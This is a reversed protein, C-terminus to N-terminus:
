LCDVRRKFQWYCSGTFIIIFGSLAWFCVWFPIFANSATIAGKLGDTMYLAPNLYAAYGLAPSFENLVYWPIWFGGLMFIISNVRSWLTGLNASSKLVVAALLHYASAWVSGLLLLIAVKPWSVLELSVYDSLLLGIMPYFPLALLFGYIGTFLIRELLVLFPSLVTIQYEIFKRSELDFLLEINQKYSFLMLVLLINGVFLITNMEKTPNSFFTNGQLFASMVGLSIPYIFAYNIINGLFFKKQRMIDRQVFSLFVRMTDVLRM